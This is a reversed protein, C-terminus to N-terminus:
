LPPFSSRYFFKKDVACGPLIPNEAASGDEQKTSKSASVERVGGHWLKNHNGISSTVPPLLRLLLVGCCGGWTREACFLYEWSFFSALTFVKRRAM